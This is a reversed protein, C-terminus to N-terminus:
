RGVLSHGEFRQDPNRYHVEGSELFMCTPTRSSPCDLNSITTANIRRISVVDAIADGRIFTAFKVGRMRRNQLYSGALVLRLVNAM